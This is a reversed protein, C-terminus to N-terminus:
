ISSNVLDQIFNAYLKLVNKGKPFIAKSMYSDADDKSFTRYNKDALLSWLKDRMDDRCHIEWSNFFDESMNTNSHACKLYFIPKDSILADFIVSTMTFLVLDSWDILQPSHLEESALYFNDPLSKLFRMNNRRTHPKIMIKINNFKGLFKIIRSVEELHLNYKEPALFWVIKLNKDSIKPMPHKPILKRINVNWEKNFRSSGLVVAQDKNVIGSDIYRKSIIENEFIVYNTYAKEKSSDHMIKKSASVDMQHDLILSNSFTIHGHPMSITKIDVTQCYEALSKYVNGPYVSSSWKQDFVVIKTDSSIYEIIQSPELNQIRRKMLTIYPNLFSRNVLIRWPNYIGLKSDSIMFRFFLNKLRKGVNLVDLINIFKVGNQTLFRIRFDNTFDNTLSFSLINIKLKPSEESLKYIVPAMHDIDNYARVIFMVSMDKM